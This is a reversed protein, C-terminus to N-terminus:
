RGGIFFLSCPGESEDPVAVPPFGPRAEVEDVRIAACTLIYQLASLSSLAFLFRLSLSSLAFLTRLARLSLSSYSSCSPRVFLASVVFFSLSLTFSNLENM